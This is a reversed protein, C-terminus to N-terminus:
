RGDGIINAITSKIKYAIYQGAKEFFEQEGITTGNFNVIITINEKSKGNIINDAQKLLLQSRPNNRKLPIAMEPGAEGFISPRTAIGGKAFKPLEPISVGWEKGGWKPVWDPVKVKISNVGGIVTNIGDIFFNIFAKFGTKVGEWIGSFFDGIPSFAKKISEWLEKAKKSISDWNRWLAYGIAIVAGIALVIWGLPTLVLTGNFLLWITNLVTMVTKLIGIVKIVTYLTGIFVLFTSILKEHKKVFSFIKKIIKVIKTISDGINKVWKQIKKENNTVWNDIKDVYNGIAGSQTNMISTFINKVANKMKNLKFGITNTMIKFAEDTAGTSNKMAELSTNFDKFGKGTLVLAGSLARVNGFLQGMLETNKGTKEKIEELFKGFGKSKIASVSFDIGLKKAVKSAEASPKIVSTLVGKFATVAEDTKLGNKTLSAMGAMLEDISVGASKAVPTLSGMSESLEAVTTVGLNQTVLLKDSIDQMAKTGTLGYVNMTSTMIKLASNADTFGAKALKTANISAQLSDKASVGSSIASYQTEALETVSVGTKTSAKLLDKKINKLELANKAISKVKAAGEELDKLGEFGAKVAFAGTITGVALGLKATKKIIKDISKVANKQWRTIQNQSKKMERTVKGVNRSVKVLPNSIKDKLTLITGITRSM